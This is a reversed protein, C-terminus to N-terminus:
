GKTAVKGYSRRRQNLVVEFVSWSSHSFSAISFAARARADGAATSEQVRCGSLTSRCNAFLFFLRAKSM